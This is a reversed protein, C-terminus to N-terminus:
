QQLLRGGVYCPEITCTVLVLRATYRGSAAPSLQVVPFDDTLDDRGVERGSPDEVIIDVDDCENDCAGVFAYTRGRELDVRWRHEQGADIAAIEDAVGRARPWGGGVHQAYNDLYGSILRHFQAEEGAAAAVPAPTTGPTVKGGTDAAPPAEGSTADDGAPPAAAADATAAAVEPAEATAEDEGGGGCSALMLAAALGAGAGLVGRTM